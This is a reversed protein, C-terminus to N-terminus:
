VNQIAQFLNSSILPGLDTDEVIDAFLESVDDEEVTQVQVVQQQKSQEENGRTVAKDLTQLPDELPPDAYENHKVKVSLRNDDSVDDNKTDESSSSTHRSKKTSSSTSSNANDSDRVNRKTRLRLRNGDDPDEPENTKTNNNKDDGDPSSNCTFHVNEKALRNGKSDESLMNQRNGLCPDGPM